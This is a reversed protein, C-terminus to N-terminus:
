LYFALKYIIIGVENIKKSRIRARKEKTAVKTM